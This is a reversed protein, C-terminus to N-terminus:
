RVCITAEEDSVDTSVISYEDFDFNIDMGFYYTSDSGGGSDDDDSWYKNSVEPLEESEIGYYLEGIKPLEWDDNGDEDLDTCYDYADYYGLDTSAINSWENRVAIEGGAVLNGTIGFIETGNAINEAVLDTDESELLNYIETLTPFSAAVTGPTTFPSSTAVPSYTFDNLKALFDKLSKHTDDALDGQPELTGIAKVVTSSLLTIMLFFSTKSMIKKFSKYTNKKM